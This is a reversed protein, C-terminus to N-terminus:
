YKGGDFPHITKLYRIIEKIIYPLGNQVDLKLLMDLQEKSEENFIGVKYYANSKAVIYNLPLSRNYNLDILIHFHSGIFDRVYSSNPRYFWDVENPRIYDVTLRQPIYALMKANKIYVMVKIRKKEDHLQGILQEIIRFEEEDKYEYVIGISEATALSYLKQTRSFSKLKLEKKLLSNGIYLQIPKLINM